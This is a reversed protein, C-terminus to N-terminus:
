QENEWDKQSTADHPNARSADLPKDNMRIASTM